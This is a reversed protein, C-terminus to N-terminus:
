GLLPRLFSGTFLASRLYSPQPSTKHLWDVAKELESARYMKETGDVSRVLFHSGNDIVEGAYVPVYTDGVLTNDTAAYKGPSVRTLNISGIEIGHFGLAYSHEAEPSWKRYPNEERERLLELLLYGVVAGFSFTLFSQM